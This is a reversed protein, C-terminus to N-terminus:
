SCPAYSCKGQSTSLTLSIEPMVKVKQDERLLFVATKKKKDKIFINQGKLIAIM